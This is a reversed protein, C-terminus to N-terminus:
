TNLNSANQIFKWSDQLMQELNFQAQWGLEQKAKSPNSYCTALDGARRPSVKYPIKQGSVQEFAHIIELVSYGQGTGLNWTHVGAHQDLYKLAAVHGQALDVVHIYDRVGTGDPTPYDQGFVALEALEGVAVKAVYPLLNNPIGKPNEGLLGSAHAGIPNFYRLLAIRWNPNSAALDRTLDEVILKTRGYPNTPRALPCNETIPIEAPEGYVTASSSFVLKFVGAQQMAQLLVQSGYVNNSYYSLPDETSEGVAKLGAFHVVAQISHQSFIQELLAADRIDGQIFKISQGTLQEVRALVQAQSNCLNDLVLLQYGAQALEVLTHSGIFGAGGTVLLM